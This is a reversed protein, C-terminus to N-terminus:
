EVIEEDLYKDDVDSGDVDVANRSTSVKVAEENQTEKKELADQDDAEFNIIKMM